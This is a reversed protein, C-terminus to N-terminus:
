NNWWDVGKVAEIIGNLVNDTLRMNVIRQLLEETNGDYKVKHTKKNANIIRLLHKINEGECLNPYVTELGLMLGHMGVLPILRHQIKFKKCVKNNLKEYM